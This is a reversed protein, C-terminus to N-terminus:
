KVRKKKRWAKNVAAGDDRCYVWDRKPVRWSPGYRFALYEETRAPVRFEMGYFKITALNTFYEAPIVPTIDKTGIRQYVQAVIQALRIRLSSPLVRSTKVLISEVFNKVSPKARFDVEYRHPTSLMNSLHILYTGILKRTERTPLIAKDDILRYFSLDAWFEEERHHIHIYPTPTEVVGVKFGKDSLENAVLRKVNRSLNTDWTTLDIDNDWPIIEGDRVAGLLTGGDLWFEISHKDLVEKVERLLDILADNKMFGGALAHNPDKDVKERLNGEGSSVM